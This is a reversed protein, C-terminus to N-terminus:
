DDGRLLKEAYHCLSEYSNVGDARQGIQDKVYDPLSDYYEAAQSNDRILSYVDSYKEM